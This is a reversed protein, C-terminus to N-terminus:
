PKPNTPTAAQNLGRREDICVAAAGVSGLGFGTGSVLGWIGFDRVWARRPDEAFASKLLQSSCSLM